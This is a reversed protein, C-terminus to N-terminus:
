EPLVNTTGSVYTYTGDVSIGKAKKGTVNMNITGGNFTFNGKVKIGRCKSEDAQDKHYTTGTVDMKVLTPTDTTQSIVLDTGASIGKTGDGAVTANLTGGAITILSDAKLGKTDDSTVGLNLTGGNLIVQGNLEDTADTTASVDICDGVPSTVSVTGGDMRFYQEIHLGDNASSTVNLTGFSPKLWTYEDSAYAHKSLGAVNLTGGGKLEAHGNVFFCAKQTGGAADTLSTTTGDPVVVNIRKGCDITVAGGGHANTLTLNDLVITAKYKGDMYFSGDASTGSLTYTVEDALAADAVISVDAGSTIITLHSLIDNSVTVHATTGAYSVGVTAPGISGTSSATISDIESVSFARGGITLTTGGDAYSMQGAEAANFVCTVAGTSVSLTQGQM